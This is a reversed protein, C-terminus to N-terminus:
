GLVRQQKEVGDGGGILWVLRSALFAATVNSKGFNSIVSERKQQQQRENFM